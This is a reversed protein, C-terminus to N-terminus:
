EGKRCIREYDALFRERFDPAGQMRALARAGEAAGYIQPLRNFELEFGNGVKETLIPAIVDKHTCLGGSIAVKNGCDYRQAAACILEAARDLSRDLIDHAVEDGARCADFVFAAFSAITDRGLAYLESIKDEVRGGLCEEILDTIRTVAGLGDAQALAARIADCGIGYGSSDPDFLYGWGGLRHVQEPTKAFVASGTGMVVAILRDADPTCNIINYVDTYVRTNLDPYEKKFMSTVARSNAQAGCGAIGAYVTGIDYPYLLLEDVGQRLAALAEKMTCSNPNSGGTVTRGVIRGSATFLVMETKTGGGDIAIAARERAPLGAGLLEDLSVAFLQALRCLNGLSPVAGGQEWKSINQASLYLESALEAQTLGHRKRFKRINYALNRFVDAKEGEAIPTSNDDIM